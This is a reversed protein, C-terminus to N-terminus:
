KPKYHRELTELKDEACNLAELWKNFQALFGSHEAVAVRNNWLVELEGKCEEVRSQYQKVLAKYFYDEVLGIGESDNFGVM